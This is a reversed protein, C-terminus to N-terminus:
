FGRAWKMLGSRALPEKEWRKELRRRAQTIASPDVGFFQAIDTGKQNGYEMALYAAEAMLRSRAWGNAEKGLGERSKLQEWLAKLGLKLKFSDKGKIEGSKKLVDSQFQDSGLIQWGGGEYFDERHGEAMGERVFRNYATVAEKPRKSFMSLVQGV